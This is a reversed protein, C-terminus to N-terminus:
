RWTFRNRVYDEHNKPEKKYFLCEDCFKEDDAICQECLKKKLIELTKDDM